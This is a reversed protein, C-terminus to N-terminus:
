HFVWRNFTLSKVFIALKEPFNPTFRGLRSYFSSRGACSREEFYARM